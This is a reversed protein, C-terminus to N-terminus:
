TNRVGYIRVTGSITGTPVDMTFGDFSSQVTHTGVTLFMTAMAWSYLAQSSFTTRQNLYPGNIDMRLANTNSYVSSPYYYTQDSDRTASVTTSDVVLRQRTYASSANNVGSSRLRLRLGTDVSSTCNFLMVYNEYLSSFCNNVSVSSVLSFDTKNVLVMGSIISDTPMALGNISSTGTVEGTGALTVPM